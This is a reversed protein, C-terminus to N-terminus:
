VQLIAYVTFPMRETCALTWFKVVVLRRWSAYTPYLNQCSRNQSIPEFSPIRM